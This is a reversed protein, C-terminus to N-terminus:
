LPRERRCAGLVPASSAPTPKLGVKMADWILSREGWIAKPTPPLMRDLAGVAQKMFAEPRPGFALDVRRITGFLNTVVPFASGKVNTFLLAPGGQDIVRRHIEAIELYPDVPADIVALDNERRLTEIFGRLDAFSM